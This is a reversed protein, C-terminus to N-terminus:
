NPKVNKKLLEQRNKENVKENIQLSTGGENQEYHDNLKNLIPAATGIFQDHKSLQQTVSAFFTNLPVEGNDTNIVINKQLFVSATGDGNDRHSSSLASISNQKRMEELKKNAEFAEMRAAAADRAADETMKQMAKWQQENIIYQASQDTTQQPQSITSVTNSAQRSLNAGHVSVYVYDDGM